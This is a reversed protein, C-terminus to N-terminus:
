NRSVALACWPSGAKAVDAFVEDVAASKKDQAGTALALGGFAATAALTFVIRAYRQTRM